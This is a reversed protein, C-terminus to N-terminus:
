AAATNYGAVAEALEFKEVTDSAGSHLFMVADHVYRALPMDIMVAMAGFCEASLETTHRVAEATFVRAATELPLSAYAQQTAAAQPHDLAWAAKWVLNRAAELQVAIDALKTGIAQHQIIPRGGQVRLKAYDIAAEFAARGLGLNIAARLAIGRRWHPELPKPAQLAHDAPVRCQDFSVQGGSGHYWKVVQDNAPDHERVKLGQTGRPVLLHEIGQSTAAEVVLLGAIPANVTFGADGDLLWQEGDRVVQPRQVKPAGRPRHYLWGPGHVTCGTWALHGAGDHMFKALWFARQEANLSQEFLLPALLLTHAVAMATDVDGSGLEELVVCATLVDAGAGDFEGALMLQRLGLPATLALLDAPFPPRLRQLRTANTAIPKIERAVFDRVTDRFEIQEPTLTHDIM